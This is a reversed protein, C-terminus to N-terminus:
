SLWGVPYDPAWGVYADNAVQVANVTVTIKYPKGADDNGLAYTDNEGIPFVVFELDVTIVGSPALVDDYYFWFQPGTNGKVWDTASDALQMQVVLDEEYGSDRDIEFIAQIRVYADQSDAANNIQLTREITEGPLLTETNINLADDTQDLIKATIDLDSIVITTYADTSTSFLATTMNMILVLVLLFSFITVLVFKKSELKNFFDKM